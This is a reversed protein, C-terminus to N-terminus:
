TPLLTRRLPYLEAYKNTWEILKELIKDTFFLKFIAFADHSDIYTQPAVPTTIM